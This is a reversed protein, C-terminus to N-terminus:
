LYKKLADPELAIEHLLPADIVVIDNKRRAWERAQRTANNTTFLIAKDFNGYYKVGYLDRVVSEGVQYSHWRKCQVVIRKGQFEAIVDIGHDGTKGETIASAGIRQFLGQVWKEFELPTMNKFVLLGGQYKRYIKNGEHRNFLYNIDRKLFKYLVWLLAIFILYAIIRAQFVHRILQSGAQYLIQNVDLANM